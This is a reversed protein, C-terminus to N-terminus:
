AAKRVAEHQQALDITRLMEGNPGYFQILRVDIMWMAMYDGAQYTRAHYRGDSVLLSEEAGALVTHSLGLESFVKYVTKRVADPTPLAEMCTKAAAM